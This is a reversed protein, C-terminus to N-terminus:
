LVIMFGCSDLFFGEITNFNWKFQMELIQKRMFVMLCIYESIIHLCRIIGERNSWPVCFNENNATTKGCNTANARMLILVWVRLFSKQICCLSTCLLMKFSGGSSGRRRARPQYIALATRQLSRLCLGAKNSREYVYIHIYLALSIRNNYVHPVDLISGANSERIKIIITRQDHQRRGGERDSEWRVRALARTDCNIYVRELWNAQRM